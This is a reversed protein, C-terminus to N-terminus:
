RRLKPHKSDRDSLIPNDIPWDIKIDPDNWIIGGQDEKYYYDACKYSLHAVNSTVCYGHAFGTPIFLQYHNTSSLTYGKWEGFTPSDKRIDVVVDFVKGVTVWVLKAQPHDIQYHIGRLVNHLSVSHNDQIFDSYIGKSMYEERNYVETFFGRSDKLLDLQILYVGYLVSEIVKM